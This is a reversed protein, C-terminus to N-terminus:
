YACGGICRQVAAMLATDGHPDKRNVDAKRDILLKAISVHGNSAAMLLPTSGDLRPLRCDPDVGKSLLKAAQSARDISQPVKLGDHVACTSLAVAATALAAPILM